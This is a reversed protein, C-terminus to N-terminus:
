SIREERLKEFRQGELAEPNLEMGQQQVFGRV